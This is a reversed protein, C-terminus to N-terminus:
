RGPKRRTKRPPPPQYEGYREESLDRLEWSPKPRDPQPEEQFFSRVCASSCFLAGGDVTSGYDADFHVFLHRRSNGRCTCCGEDDLVAWGKNPINEVRQWDFWHATSDDFVARVCSASCLGVVRGDRLRVHVTMGDHEDYQYEGCCWCCRSVPYSWVTQEKYRFTGDSWPFVVDYKSM